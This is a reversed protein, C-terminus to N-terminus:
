GLLESNFWPSRAEQLCRACQEPYEAKAIAKRFAQYVSGNWLERFSHEKLEGMKEVTGCCLFVQGNTRIGFNIWPQVCKEPKRKSELYHSSFVIKLQEAQSKLNKLEDILKEEIALYQQKFFENYQRDFCFVSSLPEIVLHNIGLKKALGITQPLQNFNEKMLTFQMNLYPKTSNNKRKAQNLLNISDFIQDLEAGKRIKRYVGPDVADVSISICDVQLAVLEEAIKQTILTANTNFIIELERKKIFKIIELFDPHLFPEGGGSLFCRLGNELAEEMKEILEWSLLKEPYSYESLGIAVPCMPCSLNCISTPELYIVLPFHQAKEEGKEWSKKARALNEQKKALLSKKRILIM